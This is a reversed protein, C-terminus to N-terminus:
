SQGAPQETPGDVAGTGAEVLEVFARAVPTLPRESPMALGVDFHATPGIMAVGVLGARSRLFSGTLFGVGM